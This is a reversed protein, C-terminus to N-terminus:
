SAAGIVAVLLAVSRSIEQIQPIGRPVHFLIRFNLKMSIGRDHEGYEALHRSGEFLAACVKEGFRTSTVNLVCM